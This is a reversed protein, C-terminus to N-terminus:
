SNISSYSPSRPPSRWSHWLNTLERTTLRSLFLLSFVDSIVLMVFVLGWDGSGALAGALLPGIAAGVSGTGDIIATVTALAKSSGRLSPHQGLEASVATTILAYPGNVLIGTFLTLFINWSFCSNHIPEGHSSKIPCWNAVVEEYVVMTPIAMVLMIACTSAPKGTKDSLMGAIIGGIIGGVDFITSLIAAEEADVKDMVHIYNPLWYLFTYSVLKAFFLSISFEVVGPISLAGVFSIAEEEGERVQVDVDVSHSPEEEKDGDEEDELLPDTESNGNPLDEDDAFGLDQPRPVMVLFLLFGVGAIIVGPVTFSLGWNYQVFAGAILSGFINGLSTHSNWLGMILGRRGKGFWNAMVSVVGPWGTAQFCGTIIQVILLYWLSHIGVVYSFGFLWTSIGSFIMGLSLFYRLNMREAVFGSFFMFFAYSFLYTTDLMGLYTKASAPTEGDIQTIWSTCTDHHTALTKNECDLFAHSNKVISIPKRSLHYSTYALFTLLLVLYKHFTKPATRLAPVVHYLVPLDQM